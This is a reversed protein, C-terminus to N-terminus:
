AACGHVDFGYFLGFDAGGDAVQPDALGSKLGYNLVNVVAEFVICVAFNFVDVGGGVVVVVISKIFGSSPVRNECCAILPRAFCQRM